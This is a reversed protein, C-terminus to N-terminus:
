FVNPVLRGDGELLAKVKAPNMLDNLTWQNEILHQLYLCLVPQEGISKGVRELGDELSKPYPRDTLGSEKWVLTGLAVAPVGWVSAEHLTNSNVAVVLRCFGTAFLSHTSIKQSNGVFRDGTRLKISTLDSGDVPHQKFLVPYDPQSAYVLDVCAQAFRVNADPATSYYDKLVSGSDRLNADNALQFAFLVFPTRIAERLSSVDEPVLQVAFQERVAELAVSLRGPNLEHLQRRGFAEAIHSNANTGDPSIQYAWRPLWGHEIYLRSRIDGYSPKASWNVTWHGDGSPYADLQVGASCWDLLSCSHHLAYFAQRVLIMGKESGKQYTHNPFFLPPDFARDAQPILLTKGKRLVGARERERWQEIADCAIWGPTDGVPLSGQIGEGPRRSGCGSALISKVRNLM